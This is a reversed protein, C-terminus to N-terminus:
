SEVRERPLFKDYLEPRQWQTLVGAKAGNQGSSTPEDKQTRLDRVRDLDVDVLRVPRGDDLVAGEIVHLRVGVRQRGDELVEELAAHFAENM